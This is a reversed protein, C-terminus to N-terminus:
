AQLLKKEVPIEVMQFDAKSTGCDPCVWDGPIDEWATGPPIGEDPLGLRESYVFGCVTCEWLRDPGGEAAGDAKSATNPPQTAAATEPAAPSAQGAGPLPQVYQYGPEAEQRRQIEIMERWTAFLGNTAPPLDHKIADHLRRLNYCPVAAYMHHDAHFNMYWNLFQVVPNLYMTRTNLRFDPVKDKLGAHQPGNCLIILWAGYLPTFSVVVPIIWYGYYISVLTIAGHGALLIRGWRFVSYRVPDRALLYSEWGKDLRGRAYRLSSKIAGFMRVPDVFATKLFGALTFTQPLLVEQDQPPYLTFKHHETHSAWYFDYPFWRLFGFVRLFLGNLWSQKFVTGHVLEHEANSMFACVTGHVFLAPILLLWSLHQAYVALSGTLIMLGLFGGAQALGKADSRQNLSQLLSQEVPTRYWNVVLDHDFKTETALNEMSILAPLLTLRSAAPM